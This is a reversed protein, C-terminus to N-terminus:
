KVYCKLKKERKKPYNLDALEDHDFNWLYRDWLDLKDNEIIKKSRIKENNGVETTAQEWKRHITSLSGPRQVM